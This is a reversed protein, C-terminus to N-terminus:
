NGKRHLRVSKLLKINSLIGAKKLALYDNLTDYEIQLKSIEEEFRGSVSKETDLVDEIMKEIEIERMGMWKKIRESDAESCAKLNYPGCYPILVDKAWENLAEYDKDGAYELLNNPDGGYLLTPTGVIKM